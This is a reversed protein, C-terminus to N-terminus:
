VECSKTDTNAHHLPIFLLQFAYYAYTVATGSNANFNKKSGPLMAM